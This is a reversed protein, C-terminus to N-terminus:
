ALAIPPKLGPPITLSAWVTVTAPVLTQAPSHPALVLAAPTVVVTHCIQCSGHVDCHLAPAKGTADASAHVGNGAHEPCPSPATVSPTVIALGVGMTEGVWARLPLLAILLALLLLRM